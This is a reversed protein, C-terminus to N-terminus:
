AATAKLMQRRRAYGLGVLGLGLIALTAPEPITVDNWAVITGDWTINGDAFDWGTAFVGDEIMSFLYNDWVIDFSNLDGGVSDANDLGFLEGLSFGGAFIETFSEQWTEEGFIGLASMDLSIRGNTLDISNTLNIGSFSIESSASFSMIDASAVPEVFAAIHLIGNGNSHFVVNDVNGWDIGTSDGALTLTGISGKFIGFGILRGDDNFNPGTEQGRYAGGFYTMEEIRGSNIVSGSNMTLNDITSAGEFYSSISDIRGFGSNHVQGNYGNVNVTGISGLNTNSVRGNGDVNVTGITANNVMTSHSFSNINVTHITANEGNFVSAHGNINVTHITANEVNFVRAHFGYENINVTHIVADGVNTVEGDYVNATGVISNDTNVMFGGFSGGYQSGINATNIITNDMNTMEGSVVNATRITANGRNHMTGPEFYFPHVGVNATSITASNDIHGGGAVDATGIMANDRNDITGGVSVSATRIMANGRNDITGGSVRARGIMADDWNDIMGGFSVFAEQIIGRNSLRANSVSANNVFNGNLFPSPVEEGDLRIQGVASNASFSFILLGILALCSLTRSFCVIQKQM